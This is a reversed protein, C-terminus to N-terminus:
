ARTVAFGKVTCYIKLQKICENLTSGTKIVNDIIIIRKDKIHKVSEKKVVFAGKVNERRLADSKIDCQSLKQRSKQLTGIYKVGCLKSIAKALGFTHGRSSPVYSIYDCHQIYPAALLALANISDADLEYKARKVIGSISRYKVRTKIINKMINM